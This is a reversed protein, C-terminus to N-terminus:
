RSMDLLKLEDLPLEHIGGSGDEVLAFVADKASGDHELENKTRACKFGCITGVLPQEKAGGWTVAGGYEFPAYSEVVQYTAM